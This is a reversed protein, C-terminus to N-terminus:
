SSGVDKTDKRLLSLLKPMMCLCSYRSSYLM